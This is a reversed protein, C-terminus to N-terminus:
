PLTLTAYDLEAYGSSKQLRVANIGENLTVPVTVIREAQRPDHGGTFEGTPPLIVSPQGTTNVVLLDVANLGAIGNAYSINLNYTRDRPAEINFEVYSDYNNLGGIYDPLTYEDLYSYKTSDGTFAYVAQYRHTDPRVDIYDIAANGMDKSFRILNTGAKLDVRKQTFAFEATPGGKTPPYALSGEKQGNVAIAHGADDGSGNSYRVNMVYIGAAPASVAFVAESQSKSLGTVYTHNSAIADGAAVKAQRLYADEAEYKTPYLDPAGAPTVLIRYGNAKDIKHIPITLNGGAPVNEDLINYAGTEPDGGREVTTDGQYPDVTWKTEDVRVRVFGTLGVSSLGNVHVDADDDSGGLLVTVTKTAPDFSAVGDYAQDYRSAAPTVPVYLGAMQNYWRMMYWGGNPQLRTQNLQWPFRLTNGLQSYNTYTGTGGFNIRDREMEAWYQVVHGPVGEFTGDNVGYEDISVPLPAGPLNLQKELPRYFNNLSNGIDSPENTLLSHWGIVDPVTDTAIANQLFAQMKTQDSPTIAPLYSLYNPGMIKLKPNIARVEQVTHSWLFNIKDNYSAGELAPDSNFAANNLQADPENLIEVAYVVDPYNETIDHIAATVQQDWYALGNWGYPFGPLLDNLRCMLGINKGRILPAISDTSYPNAGNDAARGQSATIHLTTDTILSPTTGGAITSIGFLTGLGGKLLPGKRQTLDVTMDSASAASAVLLSSALLLLTPKRSFPM